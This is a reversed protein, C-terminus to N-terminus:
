SLCKATIPVSNPQKPSGSAKRFTHKFRSLCLALLCRDMCIWTHISIIRLESVQSTIILLSPIPFYFCCSPVLFPKWFSEARLREQIILIFGLGTQVNLACRDHIHMEESSWVSVSIFFFSAVKTNKKWAHYSMITNGYCCLTLCHVLEWKCQSPPPEKSPFPAWVFLCCVLQKRRCAHM